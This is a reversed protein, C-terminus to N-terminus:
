QPTSAAVPSPALTSPRNSMTTRASNDAADAAPTETRSRRHTMRAVAALSCGRPSDAPPSDHADKADVIRDFTRSVPNRQIPLATTVALADPPRDSRCPDAVLTLRRRTENAAAVARQPRRRQRIARHPLRTAQTRQRRHADAALGAVMRHAFPCPLAASEDICLVLLSSAALPGDVVGRTVISTSVANHAHSCARSTV